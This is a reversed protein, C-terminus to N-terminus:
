LWSYSVKVTNESDDEEELSEEDDELIAEVEEDELWEEEEQALREKEKRCLSAFMNMLVEEQEPFFKRGTKKHEFSEVIV